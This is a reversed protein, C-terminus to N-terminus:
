GEHNERESIHWGECPECYFGVWDEGRFYPKRRIYEEAGEQTKWWYRKGKDVLALCPEHLRAGNGVTELFEEMDDSM